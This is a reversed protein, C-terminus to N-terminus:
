NKKHINNLNALVDYRKVVALIDDVYRVWFFLVIGEKEMSESTKNEVFSYKEKHVM